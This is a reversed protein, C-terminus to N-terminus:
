NKLQGKSACFIKTIYMVNESLFINSIAATTLFTLVCYFALVWEQQLIMQDRMQQDRM